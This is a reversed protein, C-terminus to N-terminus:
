TKARGALFWNLSTDEVFAFFAGREKRRGILGLPWGPKAPGEVIRPYGPILSPRRYTRAARCQTPDDACGPKVHPGGPGRCYAQPNGRSTLATGRRTTRHESRKM